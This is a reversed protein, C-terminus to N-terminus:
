FVRPVFCMFVTASKNNNNNNNNNNNPPKLDWKLNKEIM